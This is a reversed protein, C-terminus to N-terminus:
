KQVSAVFNIDKPNSINRKSIAKNEKLCPSPPPWLNVHNICRMQNITILFTFLYM